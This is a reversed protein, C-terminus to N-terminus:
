NLIKVDEIGSMNDRSVIKGTLTIVKQAYPALQRNLIQPNGILLYIRGDKGKLGVPLGSEICRKACDAHNQGIAGHDLYCALDIVKGTITSELRPADTAFASYLSAAFVITTIIGTKM